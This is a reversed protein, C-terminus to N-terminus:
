KKAAFRSTVFTGAFLVGGAIVDALTDLNFTVTGGAENYDAWGMYALAGSVAYLLLRIALGIAGIM